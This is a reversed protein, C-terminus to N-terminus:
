LLRFRLTSGSQLKKGPYHRSTAPSEEWSQMAGRM